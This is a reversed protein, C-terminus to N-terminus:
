RSAPVHDHEGTGLRWLGVTTPAPNPPQPPNMEHLLLDGSRGRVADGAKRLMELTASDPQGTYTDIVIRWQLGVAEPNEKALHGDVVYVTYAEIKRALSDIEAASGSWPQDQVIILTIMGDPSRTVLDIKSPDFLTNAVVPRNRRKFM